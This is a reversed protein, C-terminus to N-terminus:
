VINAALSGGDVCFLCGTIFNANESALYAVANAIDTTEGLRRLPYSNKFFNVTEERIEEPITDIMPTNIISPMIANM